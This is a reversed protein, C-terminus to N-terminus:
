RWIAHFCGAKNPTACKNPCMLMDKFNKSCLNRDKLLQRYKRRKPPEVELPDDLNQDGFSNVM